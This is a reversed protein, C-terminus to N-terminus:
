YVAFPLDYLVVAFRGLTGCLTFCVPHSLCENLMFRVITLKTDAFLHGNTFGCLTIDILQIIGM